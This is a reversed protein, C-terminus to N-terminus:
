ELSTVFKQAAGCSNLLNRIATVSAQWDSHECVAYVFKGRILYRAAQCYKFAILLFLTQFMMRTEVNYLEDAFYIYIYHM